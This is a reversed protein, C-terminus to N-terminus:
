GLAEQAEAKGQELGNLWSNQSETMDDPYPNDESEGHLGATHGRLFAREQEDLDRQRVNIVELETLIEHATSEPLNGQRVLCYLYDGEDDIHDCRNGACEEASGLSLKLREPLLQILRKM